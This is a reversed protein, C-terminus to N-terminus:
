IIVVFNVMDPQKWKLNLSSVNDKKVLFENILDENPFNPDMLAKTRINLENKINLREEKFKTFDCSKSTNCHKCGLIEILM